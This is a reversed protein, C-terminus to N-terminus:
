ETPQVDVAELRGTDDESLSYAVKTGPAFEDFQNNCESAHVFLDKRKCGNEDLARRIFGFGKSTMSKIVGVERADTHTSM